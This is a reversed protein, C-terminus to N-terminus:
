GPKASLIKLEANGTNEYTFVATADKGRVVNGLDVTTSEFHLHPAAKPTAPQAALAPPTAPPGALAPLSVLLAAVPVLLLRFRHRM